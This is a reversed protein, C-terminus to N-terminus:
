GLKVELTLESAYLGTLAGGMGPCARHSDSSGVFGFRDGSLLRKIIFDAEEICVRWSSCVEVLRDFGPKRLQWTCHHAVLIAETNYLSDM